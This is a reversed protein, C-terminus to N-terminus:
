LSIFAVSLRWTYTVLKDKEKKREGIILLNEIEKVKVLMDHFEYTM